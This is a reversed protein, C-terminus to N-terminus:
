KSEFSTVNNQRIEEIVANIGNRVHALDSTYTSATSFNSVIEMAMNQFYEFFNPDENGSAKGILIDLYNSNYMEHTKLNHKFGALFTSGDYGVFRELARSIPKSEIPPGTPIELLNPVNIKAAKARIEDRMEQTVDLVLIDEQKEAAQAKQSVTEAKKGSGYGVNPTIGTTPRTMSLNSSMAATGM